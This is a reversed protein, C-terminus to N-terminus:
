DVPNQCGSFGIVQEPVSLRAQQAIRLQLAVTRMIERSQTAVAEAERAQILGSQLGQLTEWLMQKLNEASLDSDMIMEKIDSM